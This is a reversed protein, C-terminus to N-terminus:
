VMIKLIRPHNALDNLISKAAGPMLTDVLKQGSESQGEEIELIIMGAPNLHERAQQLLQKIIVLGDCGGDLALLPEYRTVSLTKLKDSPIYPLNAAIVDFRYTINDLLNNQIFEIQSDVNLLKANQRAVDLAQESIDIATVILDEFRDALTVAIAGSGTGIDALKRRSPHDELWRICEEILLETEPRPILVDPTVKFDLGFFAQKGILYPLPEGTQLRGILQNAKVIQHDDLEFEPHTVLWERPKELLHCLIVRAELSALESHEALLRTSENLWENLKTKTMMGM